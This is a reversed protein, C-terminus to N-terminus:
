PRNRDEDDEEDEDAGYKWSDADEVDDIEREMHRFMKEQMPALKRYIELTAQYARVMTDVRQGVGDLKQTLVELKLLHWKSLCEPEKIQTFPNCAFQANGLEDRRFFECESCQLM